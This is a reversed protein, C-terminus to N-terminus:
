VIFIVLTREDKYLPYNFFPIFLALDKFEPKPITIDKVM